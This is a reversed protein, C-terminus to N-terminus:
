LVDHIYMYRYCSLMFLSFMVSWNPIRVRLQIMGQSLSFRWHLTGDASSDPLALWDSVACEVVRVYVEEFIFIGPEKLKYSNVQWNLANTLVCFTFPLFLSPGSQTINHVRAAGRRGIGGRLVEQISHVTSDSAPWQILKVTVWM